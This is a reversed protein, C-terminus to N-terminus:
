ETYILGGVSIVNQIVLDIEKLFYQVVFPYGLDM